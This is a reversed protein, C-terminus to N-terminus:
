HNRDRCQKLPRHTPLLRSKGEGPSPAALQPSPPSLCNLNSLIQGPLQAVTARGSSFDHSLCFMRLTFVFVISSNDQDEGFPFNTLAPLSIESSNPRLGCDM